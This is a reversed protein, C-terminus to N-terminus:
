LVQFLELEVSFAAATALLWAGLLEGLGTVEVNGLSM